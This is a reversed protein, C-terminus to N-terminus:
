KPFVKFLDEVPINCKALNLISVNEKRIKEIDVKDRMLLINAYEKEFDIVNGSEDYAPIKIIINFSEASTLVLRGLILDVFQQM